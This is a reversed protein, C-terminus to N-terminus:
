PAPPPSTPIIPAISESWNRGDWWRFNSPSEPDAYWGAVPLNTVALPATKSPHIPWSGSADKTANVRPRISTLYIIAMIASIGPLLLTAIILTLWLAKSSRAIVFAYSPTRIVQVTAGVIVAIVGFFVACLVLTWVLNLLPYSASIDM